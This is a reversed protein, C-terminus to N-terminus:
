EKGGEWIENEVDRKIKDERGGERNEGDAM